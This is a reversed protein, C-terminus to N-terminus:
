LRKNLIVQVKDTQKSWKTICYWAISLAIDYIFPQVRFVLMKKIAQEDKFFISIRKIFHVPFMASFFLKLPDLMQM